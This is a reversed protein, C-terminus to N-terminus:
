AELFMKLGFYLRNAIFIGNKEFPHNAILIGGTEFPHIVDVIQGVEFPHSVIDINVRYSKIGYVLETHHSVLQKLLDQEM